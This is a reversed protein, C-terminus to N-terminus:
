NERIQGLTFTLYAENGRMSGQIRMSLYGLMPSQLEGPGGARVVSVSQNWLCARCLEDFASCLGEGGM